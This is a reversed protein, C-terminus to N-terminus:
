RYVLNKVYRWLFMDLSSLDPYYIHPPFLFTLINAAYKGYQPQVSPLNNFWTNERKGNNNKWHHHKRAHKSDKTQDKHDSQWWGSFRNTWIQWIINKVHKFISQKPTNKFVRPWKRYTKGTRPDCLYLTKCLQWIEPKRSVLM